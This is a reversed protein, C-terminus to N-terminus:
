YIVKKNVIGQPTTIRVILVQQQPQLDELATETLNINDKTYIIRGRLDYVTIATIQINGSNVNLVNEKNYVVVTNNNAVPNNVGL